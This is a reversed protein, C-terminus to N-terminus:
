RHIHYLLAVQLGPYRNFLLQVSYLIIYYGTLHVSVQVTCSM